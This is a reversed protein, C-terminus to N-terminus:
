EAPGDATGPGVWAIWRSRGIAEESRWVEYRVYEGEQTTRIWHRRAWERLVHSPAKGHDSIWKYLETKLLLLEVVQDDSNCVQVGFKTASTAGGRVRFGGRASGFARPFSDPKSRIWDSLAAQMHDAATLVERRAGGGGLTHAIAGAARGDFGYLAVLTEEVLMLLSQYDALRSALPSAARLAAKIERRRRHLGDWEAPTTCVLTHLWDFGLSGSHAECEARLDDIAAADGDLEGFGDVILDLIRAQAGTAMREDTLPVEGSSMVVTRWTMTGRLTIERTMRGRGQGNVLTYVLRQVHVLDAAEGLEDYFQPLDCLAAARAEVANPTQNWSAWWARASPNGFVSAAIRMMTSKGRTSDGCLHVGLGTLGLPHLMPAAMAACLTLRVIPSASWARRLAALHEDLTGRPTLAAAIEALEGSAVVGPDDGTYLTDHSVFASGIWGTRSISRVPPLAADNVAELARFWAVLTKATGSTVPAGFPALEAVLARTDALAKRSVNVVHWGRADRYAVDVRQEGSQHDAYRRALLMAADCVEVTKDGAHCTVRGGDAVQYGRPLVLGDPVPAGAFYACAAVTADPADPDDPSLDRPDDVLVARMAAVGHAVCYDDVGKHPSREPPTTFRVSTAGMGLLVGALRRAAALVDPKAYADNDWCLVHAAGAVAVHDAIRPHLYWGGDLKRRVPDSWMWVGTLGVVDYGEQALLLAKKEGEVWYKVRAPDRLVGGRMSPPYYVMVGAGDGSPQDYKVLRPKKSGQGPPLVRPTDPRVRYAYPTASAPLYFPFVVVDGAPVNTSRGLLHM